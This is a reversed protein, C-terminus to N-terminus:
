RFLHACIIAAIFAVAVFAIFGLVLPNAPYRRDLHAWPNRTKEVEKADVLLDLDSRM